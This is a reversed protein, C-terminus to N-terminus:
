LFLSTKGNSVPLLLTKRMSTLHIAFTKGLEPHLLRPALVIPKKPLNLVLQKIHRYSPRFDHGWQSICHAEDVAVLPIDMQKLDEIFERSELREPAIYLLKYEGQKAELIRQNAENYSLSSNIFTAPIGAHVLADVQDKM